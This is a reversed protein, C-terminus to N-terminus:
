TWCNKHKISLTSPFSLLFCWILFYFAQFAPELQCQALEKMTCTVVNYSNFPTKTVTANRTEMYKNQRKKQSELSNQKSGIPFLLSFLTFICVNTRSKQKLVSGLLCSKFKSTDHSCCEWKWQAEEVHLPLPQTQGPILQLSGGLDVGERSSLRSGTRKQQWFRRAGKVPSSLSHPIRLCM